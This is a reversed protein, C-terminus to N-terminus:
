RWCEKRAISGFGDCNKKPKKKAAGKDASSRSKKKRVRPKHAAQQSSSADVAPSGTEAVAPEQLGSPPEEAVGAALVSPSISGGADASDPIGGTTIVGRPGMFEDGTDSLAIARLGIAAATPVLSCLLLVGLVGLCGLMVAM